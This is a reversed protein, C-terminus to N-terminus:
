QSTVTLPSFGELPNSIKPKHVFFGYSIIGSAVATVSSAVIIALASFGFTFGLTAVLGTVLATTAIAQVLRWLHAHRGNLITNCTNVFTKINEPTKETRKFQQIVNKVAAGRRPTVATNVHRAFTIVAENLKTAKLSLDILTSMLPDPMLGKGTKASTSVCQIDAPLALTKFRDDQNEGSDCKTAVVIITKGPYSEKLKDVGQNIKQSDNPQQPQSFDICYLFCHSESILVDITKHVEIDPSLEVKDWLQIPPTLKKNDFKNLVTFDTAFTRRYTNLFKGTTMRHILATKGAQSDGVVTVQYFAAM